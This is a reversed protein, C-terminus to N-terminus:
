EQVENAQESDTSFTLTYAGHYTSIGIERRTTDGGTIRRVLKAGFDKMLGQIDEQSLTIKIHVQTPGKM